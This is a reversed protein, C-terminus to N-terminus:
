ATAATLAAQTKAHAEKEAALEATLTEIQQNLGAVISAGEDNAARFAENEATLTEIQANAEILQGATVSNGAAASKPAFIAALEAQQAHATTLNTPKGM